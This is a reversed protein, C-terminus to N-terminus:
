IIDGDGSSQLNLLFRTQSIFFSGFPGREPPLNWWRVAKKHTPGITSANEIEDIRSKHFEIRRV